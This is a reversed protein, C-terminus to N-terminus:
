FVLYYRCVGCRRAFTTNVAISILCASVPGVSWLPVQLLSCVDNAFVYPRGVVVGREPWLRRTTTPGKHEDNWDVLSRKRVLIIQMIAMLEETGVRGYLRKGSCNLKSYSIISYQAYQKAASSHRATVIAVLIIITIHRRRGTHYLQTSNSFTFTYAIM